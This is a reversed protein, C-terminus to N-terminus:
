RLRLPDRRMQLSFQFAAYLPVLFYLAAALTVLAPFLAFRPKM